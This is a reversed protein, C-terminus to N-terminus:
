SFYDNWDKRLVQFSSANSGTEFSADAERAEGVASRLSQVATNSSCYFRCDGSTHYAHTRVIRTGPGGLEAQTLDPLCSHKM